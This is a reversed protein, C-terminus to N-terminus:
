FGSSISFYFQGEKKDDYNDSLPYGYDLKVPGIPTKVRVGIGAGQKFGSSYKAGSIENDTNAFVDSVSAWVNGVDYFVAGKVINKYIPFNIEANGTVIAEGGIAEDSGTDRPGVARQEYGRITTAGGAFFREYIPLEDSKGYNDALGMFGKLELVVNDIISYYTKATGTGKVFDKDGGIFGGANELSSGLFYGKTPSFKNDRKDYNTNWTLKSVVNTGVEKLLANSANDPMNSIKIEELNYVLGMSLYETLEKGLRFSVGTRQEDYGYGSLGFKNHEERYIDFGFLLPYDFIWPDTWSLLYNTRASGLETRIVLDQGAGTFTPFDLIDFNRQRIQAFGIFADVSSYGGGFSFEGTKTEKVTVDLDKVNPDSTPVTEFFVDEFYGLNYIREKSRKLQKGDYKEGPYLRVERRVVKDKTKTNGSINVKGVYIEQNANVHFVIDMSNTVPNFRHEIDVEANMYSKDYYFMRISELDDQMKQYDFPDETKIKVLDMIEKEGFVLNGKITVDGIRYQQGENIVVIVNMFKGEDSFDERSTVQVDLFGKSRYFTSIRALDEAFKEDDFAGKRIFWWATKTTMIAALEGSKFKENGEFKITKVKMATGESINFIVKATDGSVGTDVTYEVKAESYGEEIYYNRIAAADEAIQNFNLLDGEALNIKKKLKPTKLRSNGNFIIETILPKETVIFIAIVGDARDEVEVTVDSFFGMGYMRKMEKNLAGEDYIDGPKIKLRNLITSSSISYNGKIVIDVLSKGRASQAHSSDVLSFLAVFVCLIVSIIRLRM